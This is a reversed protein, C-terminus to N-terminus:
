DLIWFRFDLIAARVVLPGDLRFQRTCHPIEVAFVAPDNQIKVEALETSGSQRNRIPSKLGFDLISFGFDGSKLGFDLIWFRRIEIWFGFDFIWFRGAAIV